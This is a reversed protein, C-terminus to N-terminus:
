WHHFTNSFFNPLIALCVIYRYLLPYLIQLECNIWCRYRNIFHGILKIISFHYTGIEVCVEFIGEYGETDFLPLYVMHGNDSTMHNMRQGGNQTLNGYVLVDFKQYAVRQAIKIMLNNDVENPLVDTKQLIVFVSSNIIKGQSSTLFQRKLTTTLNHVYSLVWLNRVCYTVTTHNHWSLQILLDCSRAITQLTYFPSLSDTGCVEISYLM